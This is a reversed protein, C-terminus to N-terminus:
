FRAVGFTNPRVTRRAEEDCVSLLLGLVKRSDRPDIMGDDDLRATHYYSTSIPEYLDIVQQHLADLAAEDMPEGKRAAAAENVIRMVLAAQKSGMVGAKYNPWGLLFRPQYSRGSMAYNGAGFSAGIMLTIRPVTANTVAQIMKAGHKIMGQAEPEAGVIFGTTNHLYILPTDSQSCLQMFQSAKTAGEPTIPGNSGILGCPFGQIEAHGCITQSDYMAKFELFDSGDVLRAILERVDYPKQYDMSVLGCIEDIDYAPEEHRRALGPRLQNAWNLRRVIDRCVQVAEADDDAVHEALGSTSAHMDTGGLTEDDAIEGTAARLLPPGALFAKAQKRVMVVYDSMGPMYAGGATSSGHVVTIVPCGAASLQAQRQFMHGAKQWTEPVYALLDAGASQVLHIAPMKNELAMDFARIMKYVGYTHLAGATIGSDDVIIVCRVGSVTGIGTILRAGTINQEGDDDFTQYGALTSFELWPAGRDLLLDLRDRPLLQG